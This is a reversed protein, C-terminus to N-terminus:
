TIGLRTLAAIVATFLQADTIVDVSKNINPAQQDLANRVAARIPEASAVAWALDDIPLDITPDGVGDWLKDRAIAEIRSRVALNQQINYALITEKIAM